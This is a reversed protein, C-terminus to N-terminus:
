FYSLMKWNLSPNFRIQSNKHM